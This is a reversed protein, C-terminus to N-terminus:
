CRACSGSSNRAGTGHDVGRRLRAYARRYLGGVYPGAFGGLNGGLQDARNRGGGRGRDPYQGPDGLRVVCSSTGGRCDHHMRTRPHFKACVRRRFIRHVRSRACRWISGASVWGIPPDELWWWRGVGAAAFNGSFCIRGRLVLRASAKSFKRFGSVSETFDQIRLPFLFAHADM